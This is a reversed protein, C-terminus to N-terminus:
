RFHRPGIQLEKRRIGAVTREIMDPTVMRRRFLEELIVVSGTFERYIEVAAFIEGAAVVERESEDFRDRSLLVMALELRALARAFPLGAQDFGEKVEAFAIEASLLNGLGYEIRGEIWRFRLSNVRDQYIVHQRSEFLRRKAEDHRELDVLFLLENHMAMLFLAPDRHRDILEIGQRNLDLAEEPRCHYFTYLARIILTRGAQHTEGMEQYAKFVLDLRSEVGEFRRWTGYLSAELELLRAHLYPDGTGQKFFAFAQGFARDASRLRDASARYANGLEGWARAQLDAVRKAGHVEPDLRKAVELAARALRIMEGNGQFRVAWTRTLLAEYVGLGALPFGADRMLARLDGGSALLALATQFRTRETRSLQRLSRAHLPIDLASGDRAGEVSGTGEPQDNWPEFSDLTLDTEAGEGRGVDDQEAM